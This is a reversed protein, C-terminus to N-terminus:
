SKFVIFKSGFFNWIFAIFAAGIAAINAWIKESFGAQPGITNVIYSAAIVNISLGVASVLLFKGLEGGVGAMEKKEFAWLKVGWYKGLMAALFSIGKFLSFYLGSAIGSVSMLFNLAGLDVLTALVGLLFFKAAQFVFLFKKGILFSLWLGGLALIPLFGALIWELAKIGALFKVDKLIGSFLWAVAEGTILALIIDIRKM